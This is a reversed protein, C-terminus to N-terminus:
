RDPYRVMLRRPTAASADAGFYVWILEGDSTVQLVYSSLHAKVDCRCAKPVQPPTITRYYLSCATM